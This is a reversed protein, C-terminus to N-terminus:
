QSKLFRRVEDFFLPVGPDHDLMVHNRGPLAVFQAGPIGAAIERGLEIPISDERVHLVLTSVSVQSLLPRVDFNNVTEFYRVACEPSASKRQLENFADAHEKTATPM